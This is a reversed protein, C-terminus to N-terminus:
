KREMEKDLVLRKYNQLYRLQQKAYHVDRCCELRHNVDVIVELPYDNNTVLDNIEAMVENM